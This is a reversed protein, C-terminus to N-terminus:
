YSILYKGKNDILKNGKNDILYYITKVNQIITLACTAFDSKILYEATRVTGTNLQASVNATVNNIGSKPSIDIWDSDSTKVVSFAKDSYIKIPFTEKIGTRTITEPNNDDVTIKGLKNVTGNVTLGNDNTLKFKATGVVNGIGNLEIQTTGADGTMTSFDYFTESGLKQLQWASSSEIILTKPKIDGDPFNVTGVYLTIAISEGNIRLYIIEDPRAEKTLYKETFTRQWTIEARLVNNNKEDVVFYKKVTAVVPFIYNGAGAGFLVPETRWVDESIMMETIFDQFRKDNHYGIDAAYKTEYIKRDSLLDPSSLTPNETRGTQYIDGTIEREAILNGDCVLSEMTGFSNRFYFVSTVPVEKKELFYTREAITQGNYRLYITLEEVGNNYHPEFDVKHIIVKNDHSVDYTAITTENGGKIKRVLTLMSAHDSTLFSLFDYQGRRIRKVPPHNSLWRYSLSEIMDEVTNGYQTYNAEFERSTGGPLVYRTDDPTWKEDPPEYVPMNNQSFWALRYSIRYWVFNLIKGKLDAISYDLREDSLTEQIYFEAIDMENFSQAENAALVWVGAANRVEVKMEVRAFPLGAIENGKFSFKISNGALAYDGPHEQLTISPM